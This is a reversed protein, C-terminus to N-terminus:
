RDEQPSVAACEGSILELAQRKGKVVAACIPDSDPLQSALLDEAVRRVLSPANSVAVLQSDALNDGRYLAIFSIM